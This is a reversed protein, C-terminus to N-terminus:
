RPYRLTFDAVRQCSQLDLSVNATEAERRMKLREAADWFAPRLTTPDTPDLRVARAVLWYRGPALNRFLFAGDSSPATEYFRLTNDAHEREAPVLYLRTQAPVTAGEEAHVVRGGVSAAGEAVRVSVGSLQQGPRLDFAERSATSVAAPTATRAVGPKAAPTTAPTTAASDPLQVSRAYFNEDAPRVEVRYRGSALNRSTFAGGEDPTTESGFVRPRPQSKSLPQPDPRVFIATEQPLLRAKQEKCEVRAREAEPLPEIFLTGSVSGLPVPTLKLGTVDAGKVTVRLPPSISNSGSRTNQQASLDYEGDAIGEFSFSRENETPAIWASALYTGTAAHILNVSLAGSEEGPQLPPIVILGSIRQGREDRFRIDIGTAEQGARVTIEAATDRTGSPYYTPSNDAFPVPWWSYMPSGGASVTYVGPALGYVRYVGRDDTMEERAGFQQFPLGLSELDRVKFARVSAGVLPEGSADTVTGTIVGGKIMRITINDGLRVRNRSPYPLTEPEVVYGPVTANISYVSPELDKIVFLGEEDSTATQPPRFGPGANKRSSAYISVGSLPEGGEAVIRGKISGTIGSRSSASQTEESPKSPAAGATKKSAGSTAAAAPEQARSTRVFPASLLSLLAACCLLMARLTAAAADRSRSAAHRNDTLPEVNSPNV